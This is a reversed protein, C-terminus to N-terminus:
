VCLCRVMINPCGRRIFHGGVFGSRVLTFQLLVVLWDAQMEERKVKQPLHPKCQPSASIWHPGLIIEAGHHMLKYPKLGGDGGRLTAIEVSESQKPAKKRWKQQPPPNCKKHEPISVSAPQDITAALRQLAPHGESYGADPGTELSAAHLDSACGHSAFSCLAGHFPLQAVVHCGLGPPHHTSGSLRQPQPRQSPFPKQYSM